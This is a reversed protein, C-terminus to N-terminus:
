LFYARYGTSSALAAEVHGEQSACHLPTWGNNDQATVDPGREFLIDSVGVHGKHSAM